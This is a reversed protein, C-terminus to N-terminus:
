RSRTRRTVRICKVSSRGSARLTWMEAMARAKDQWLKRRSWQRDTLLMANRGTAWEEGVRIAWCPPEGVTVVAPKDDNFTFRPETRDVDQPAPAAASM